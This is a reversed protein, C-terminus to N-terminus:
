SADMVQLGFVAPFSDVHNLQTFAFVPAVEIVAPEVGIV